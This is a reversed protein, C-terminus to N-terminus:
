PEEPKGVAPIQAVVLEGQDVQGAPVAADELQRRAVPGVAGGDLVVGPEVPPELVELTVLGALGAARAPSRGAGVVVALPGLGDLHEGGFLHLLM